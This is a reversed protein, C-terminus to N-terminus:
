SLCGTMILNNCCCECVCVCMCVCVCVVTKHGEKGPSDPYAPALLFRGRSKITCPLIVSVPVGVVWSHAVGDRSILM